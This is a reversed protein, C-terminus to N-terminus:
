QSLAALTEVARAPIIIRGHESLYNERASTLPVPAAYESLRALVGQMAAVEEKDKMKLLLGYAGQEDFLVSEGTYGAAIQSAGEIVTSMSSFIYLRNLANFESFEHFAEQMQLMLQQRDTEDQPNGLASNLMQDLPCTRADEDEAPEGQIGPAFSAFRTDLEEPNDVRTVVLVISGGRMPIAEIMLPADDARFGCEESAQELMERFLDRAKDTGYALESLRIQRASLDEGTLVFRIQNDSIKQIKM